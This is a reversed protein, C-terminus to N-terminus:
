LQKSTDFAISLINVEPKPVPSGDTPGDTDAQRDHQPTICVRQVYANSIRRACVFM